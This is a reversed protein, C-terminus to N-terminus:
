KLPLSFFFTSGKGPESKVWIKGRHLSIIEGCLYLGIGFGPIKETQKSEVRYYREFLKSIDKKAIGLGEDIVSVQVSNAIVQTDIKIEGGAPSYKIANTILNQMISRLM